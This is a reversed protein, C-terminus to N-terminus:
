LIKSSLAVSPVENKNDIRPAVAHGDLEHMNIISSMQRYKLGHFGWKCYVSQYQVRSCRWM